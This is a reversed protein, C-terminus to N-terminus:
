NGGYNLIEELILQAYYADSLNAAKDTPAGNILNLFEQSQEVFGPKNKIKKDTFVDFYEIVNPRYKRLPFDITPELVEMGKLKQFSEFPSLNVKEDGNEIFLSFNAPSNWNLSLFCIDKNNNELVAYRGTEVNNNYICEVYKIHLNGFLYRMLDIGHCSNYYVNWYDSIDYESLKVTEPLQMSCFSSMSKSRLFDKAADITNYFRRNYGVMINNPPDKAFKSLYDTGIAVPKEILIPKGSQIACDLLIPLSNVSSAVILGDWDAHSIILEQASEWVSPINFNKAFLGLDKSRKSASHSIEVGLAKLALAHAQATPGTGILAIKPAKKM